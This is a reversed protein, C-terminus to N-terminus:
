PNRTVENAHQQEKLQKRDAKADDQDARGDAKGEGHRADARRPPGGEQIEGVIVVGCIEIAVEGCASADKRRLPDAEGFM